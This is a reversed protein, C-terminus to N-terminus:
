PRQELEVPVLGPVNQLAPMYSNIKLVPRYIAVAAARTAMAPGTGVGLAKRRQLREWIAWAIASVAIVGLPAGVGVGIAVEKKSSSTSKSATTTVNKWHQTVTYNGGM